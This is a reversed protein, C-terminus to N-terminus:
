KAWEAPLKLLDRDLLHTTKVNMMARLMCRRLDPADENLESILEKMQVRKSLPSSCYGLPCGSSVITYGSLKAYKRMDSEDCTGMPRIVTVAGDNSLLKLPMASLRGEFFMNMLLTELIDDLHHGLALKSFGKERMHSYLVGRRLRSCMACPSYKPRSPKRNAGQNLKVSPTQSDSASPTLPECTFVPEAASPVPVDNQETILQGIGPKAQSAQKAAPLAQGCADLSWSKSAFGPKSCKVKEFDFQELVHKIPAPLLVHHVGLEACKDQIPGPNFLPFGGDVTAACVSFRVPAYRSLSLLLDLMAWSDKGGSLAVLVTDGEELLCYETIAAGM